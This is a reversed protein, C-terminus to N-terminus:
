YIIVDLDLFGVNHFLATSFAPCSVPRLISKCFGWNKFSARLYKSSIFARLDPDGLRDALRDTLLDALRKSLKEVLSEALREALRDALREALRDIFLDIFLDALDIFLTLRDPL